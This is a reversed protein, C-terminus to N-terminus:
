KFIFELAHKIVRIAKLYEEIEIQENDTHGLNGDGPGYALMPADEWLEGLVNMDSTGTKKKFRPTGDLKRVAFLFARTLKTNKNATYPLTQEMVKYEINEPIKSLIQESAVDRFRIDLTM